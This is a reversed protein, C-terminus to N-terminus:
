LLKLNLPFIDKKQSQSPTFHVLSNYDMGGGMSFLELEAHLGELENSEMVVYAFSLLSKLLQSYITKLYRM